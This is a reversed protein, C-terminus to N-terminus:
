LSLPSLMILQFQSCRISFADFHDAELDPKWSCFRPVHKNLRSTFPDISHVGFEECLNKFIDENLKWEHRDNFKHFAADALLNAKSSVHCRANWVDNM